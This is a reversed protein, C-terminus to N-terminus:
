KHSGGCCTATHGAPIEEGPAVTPQQLPAANDVVAKPAPETNIANKVEEQAELLSKKFNGIGMGLSRGLEPLKKPGFVLLAVGFVMAIEIPSNLM